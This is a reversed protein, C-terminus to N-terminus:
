VYIIMTVSYAKEGAPTIYEELTEPGPNPLKLTETRITTNSVPDPYSYTLVPRSDIYQALAEPKPAIFVTAKQDGMFQEEGLNTYSAPQTGEPQGSTIAEHIDGITIKIANQPSVIIKYKRYVKRVEFAASLKIEQDNPHQLLAPDIALIGVCNNAIETNFHYFSDGIEADNHWARYRGTQLSRIHVPPVDNETEPQPNGYITKQITESGAEDTIELVDNEQLTGLVLDEQRVTVVDAASVEDNQHLYNWDPTNTLLIMESASIQPLATYNYFHPDEVLLQFYLPELSNLNSFLDETGNESGAYMSFVGEARKLLLQHNKMVQATEAFPHLVVYPCLGNTFFSHLMQISFWKQYSINM